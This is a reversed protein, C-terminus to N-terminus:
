LLTVFNQRPATIPSLDDRTLIATTFATRTRPQFLELPGLGPIPVSVVARVEASMPKAMAMSMSSESDAFLKHRSNYSMASLSHSCCYRIDSRTHMGHSNALHWTRFFRVSRDIARRTTYARTIRSHIMLEGLHRRFTVALLAPHFYSSSLFFAVVPSVESWANRANKKDPRSYGSCYCSPSFFIRLHICIHLYTYVSIFASSDRPDRLYICCRCLPAVPFIENLRECATSLFPQFYQRRVKM